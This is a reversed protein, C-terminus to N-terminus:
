LSAASLRREAITKTMVAGTAGERWVRPRVRRRSNGSVVTNRRVQINQLATSARRSERQRQQSQTNEPPAFAATTSQNHAPRRVTDAQLPVPPVSFSRIPLTRAPMRNKCGQPCLKHRKNRRHVIHTRGLCPNSFTYANRQLEAGCNAAVFCFDRGSSLADHEPGCGRFTCSIHLDLTWPNSNSFTTM